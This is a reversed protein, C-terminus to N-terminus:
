QVSDTMGDIHGVANEVVTDAGAKISNSDGGNGLMLTSGIYLALVIAFLTIIINKM